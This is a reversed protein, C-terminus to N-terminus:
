IDGWIPNKFTICIILVSFFSVTKIWYWWGVIVFVDNSIAMMKGYTGDFDGHPSYGLM